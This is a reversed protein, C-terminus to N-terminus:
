HFAKLWTRASDLNDFSRIALGEPKARKIQEVSIKGFHSQAVRNAIAKLGAAMARPMWDGAIWQQDEVSVMPLESDDGLIKQIGTEAIIQLWMEHLYRLQASTAYGHWVAVVCAVSRDIDCSCIPNNRSDAALKEGDGPEAIVAERLERIIHAQKKADYNTM